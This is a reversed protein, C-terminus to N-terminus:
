TMAKKAKEFFEWFFNKANKQTAILPPLFFGITTAYPFSCELCPVAGLFSIRWFLIL